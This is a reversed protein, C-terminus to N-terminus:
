QSPLSNENHLFCNRSVRLSSGARLLRPSYRPISVPLRATAPRSRRCRISRRPRYWYSRCLFNWPNSAIYPYTINQAKSVPFPRMPDGNSINLHHEYWRQPISYRMYAHLCTPMYPHLCTSIVWRYLLSFLLLTTTTLGRWLALSKVSTPM